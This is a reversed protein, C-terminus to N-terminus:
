RYDPVPEREMRPGHQEILPAQEPEVLKAAAANEQGVTQRPREPHHEVREPVAVEAARRPRNPHGPYPSLGPEVPRSEDGHWVYLLAAGFLVFALPTPNGRRSFLLGGAM